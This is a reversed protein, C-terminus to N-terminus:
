TLAKVAHRAVIDALTPAAKDKPTPKLGLDRLARTIATNLAGFTRADTRRGANGDTLKGDLKEALPTTKSTM